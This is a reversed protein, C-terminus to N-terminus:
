KGIGGQQKDILRWVEEQQYPTKVAYQNSELQPDFQCVSKYSCFSCATQGGLRYPAIDVKGAAIGAGIKRITARGHDRLASWQQKTMVSASKYFSGDAKMAVPILESHGTALTTDMLTVAEEDALVLGKMKFRKLVERQAEEYSLPAVARLMPQHVHFYLLGGPSAEKGIWDPAHTIAVDLYTLMQLSLGYYVESLNLRTQSSKYDIVRMLPGHAGEAQDIRDIRGAIELETGDDLTFLLPPLPGKRGFGIELGIPVFSSRRGHEALVAAAKGVIQKLKRAIFRYRNSSLLIESQLRPTLLDVAESARDACDGESLQGWALGEERMSVGIMSLAAHFLQGIDPAELQYMRREKLRLGYSAFHAFQCSAFMEMRSVSATLPSGYLLRSTAPELRQETNSHFLSGVRSLLQERWEPRAVFWNYAHWWSDAISLGKQAKKLQLTLASLVAGPHVMYAELKDDEGVNPPEGSEDMTRLQPFLREIRRVVESPLMAKGEDDALPYGIWLSVSPLTLATYIMFREDLLRRISGPALQMGNMSLKDRDRENLIGDEKMVSPMVGDNAGLLFVHKVSGPRSREMGGILVQDLAPPVLGLKIQELGTDLLEAFVEVKLQEEGMMEVFQDLTGIVSDWIGAHEKARETEGNNMCATSWEELRSAVNTAILLSYVAEAMQGASKAAKLQLDFQKLPKVIQSRIGNIRALGENQKDSLASRDEELSHHQMFTWPADQTWRTGHLGFALVYNELRDVDIENVSDHLLLGSKVARFVSDYRWGGIVVELSARILELLPHHTVNKKQDFFHPIEYDTFVTALVDRYDEMNRVLVAMDRWRFSGERALSIMRRAASEAEARRHSASVLSIDSRLFTLGKTQQKDLALSRELEALMPSDTYRPKIEGNLILPEEEYVGSEGAIQRLRILTQATPHFLELEDPSDGAAYMRDLCLTINVKRAHKILSTLAAFEQPTFGNFGDIWIEAAQAYSTQGFREALLALDDETDVYLGAIAKEYEACIRYLDHLKDILEGEYAAEKARELEEELRKADICYRNLEVMMESLRDIFGPQGATHQFVKLEDKMRHLLKHLLMKKGNDAIHIRATGGAEQMVRYAFRRFSLVQARMFGSMGPTTVLAHETKFTAQEPVLLVLPHGNDGSRLQERIEQLCVESKGSGARGIIYRISM